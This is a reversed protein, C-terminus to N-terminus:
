IKCYIKLRQKTKLNKNICKNIDLIFVYYDVYSKSLMTLVIFNFISNM